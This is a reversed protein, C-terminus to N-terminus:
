EGNSVEKSNESLLTLINKLNSFDLIGVYKYILVGEENIIFSSPVVTVKLAKRLANEPDRYFDYSFKNKKIFSNIQEKRGLMIPIYHIDLDKNLNIFEQLLIKEKLSAESDLSGFNILTMKGSFNEESLSKNNPSVVRFKLYDKYIPDFASSCLYIFFFLVLLVNIKALKM